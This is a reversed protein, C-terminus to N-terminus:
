YTQDIQLHMRSSDNGECIEFANIKAGRFIQGTKVRYCLYEAEGLPELDMPDSVEKGKSNIDRESLVTGIFVVESRTFQTKIRREPFPCIV